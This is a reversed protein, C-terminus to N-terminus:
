QEFLKNNYINYESCNIKTNFKNYWRKVWVYIKSKIEMKDQRIASFGICVVILDKNTLDSISWEYTIILLYDIILLCNANFSYYLFFLYFFLEHYHHKLLHFNFQYNLIWYM